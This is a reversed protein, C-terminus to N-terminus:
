TSQLSPPPNYLIFNRTPDNITFALDVGSRLDRHRLLSELKETPSDGPAMWWIPHSTFQVRPPPNQRIMELMSGERWTGGSDSIYRIERFLGANYGSFFEETTIETNLIYPSPKHFTVCRSVSAVGALRKLAALEARIAELLAPGDMEPYATVDFHLGVQHGLEVIRGLSRSAQPSLLNYLPNRLMVFYTSKVGSRAELEALEEAYDLDLDVDHRLIIFREARVAEEYGLFPYGLQKAERFFTVLDDRDIHKGLRREHPSNM